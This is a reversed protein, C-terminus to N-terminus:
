DPSTDDIFPASAVVVVLLLLKTAIKVDVHRRNRNFNILDLQIEHNSEVDHTFSM